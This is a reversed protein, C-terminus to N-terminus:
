SKLEPHEPNLERLKRSLGRIHNPDKNDKAFQLRIALVEESELLEEPLELMLRLAEKREGLAAAGEITAILDESSPPQPAEQFTVSRSNSPLDQAEPGEVSELYVFEPTDKSRRYHNLILISFLGLPFITPEMILPTWLFGTFLSFTRGITGPLFSCAWLIIFFASFGLIIGAGVKFAKRDDSNERQM